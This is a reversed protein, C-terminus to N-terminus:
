HPHRTDMCPLPKPSRPTSSRGPSRRTLPSKSPTAPTTTWGPSSRPTREPTWGPGPCSRACTWSWSSLRRRPPPRAPTRPGPVPSSRPRAKPGTAPWSSMSGPVPCGTSPWSRASRASRSPSLPSSWARRRCVGSPERPRGPHGPVDTRCTTLCGDPIDQALVSDDRGLSFPREGPYPGPPLGNRQRPTIAASPSFGQSSHRRVDPTRTTSRRPTASWLDVIEPRGASATINGPRQPM